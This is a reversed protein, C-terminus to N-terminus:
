QRCGHGVAVEGFIGRGLCEEETRSIYGAKRGGEWKEAGGGECASYMIRVGTRSGRRDWAEKRVEFIPICGDEAM